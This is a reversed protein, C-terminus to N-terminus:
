ERGGFTADAPSSQPSGTAARGRGLWWWVATALLAAAIWGRPGFVVTANFMLFATLATNGIVLPTDNMAALAVVSYNQLGGSMVALLIFFLLNRVIPGSLLLTWGDAKPTAAPAAAARPPAPREALTQREFALLVAAAFGLAAAGLFAGANGLFEDTLRVNQLAAHALQASQDSSAM